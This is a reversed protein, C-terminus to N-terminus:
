PFSRVKGLVQPARKGGRSCARLYAEALMGQRPMQLWSADIAFFFDCGVALFGACWIRFAAAASAFRMSLQVLSLSSSECASLM